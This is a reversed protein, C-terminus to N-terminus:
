GAPVNGAQQQARLQQIMARAQDAEASEPALKIVRQYAKIAVATNRAQYASEALLLQLLTDDPQAAAVRQYLETARTYASSIGGYLTTLQQNAANTLESDIKGQGLARGLLSSQDVGFTTGGTTATLQEQIITAENRMKLARGEYDSALTRMFEYDKPREQVYREGAAIADDEEGETRYAEALDKYAALNGDEIKDKADGVSPGSAAQGGQFLDGLGGTGSGGIGFAVFGIGFALALFVFMWKAQRRLRPFFM